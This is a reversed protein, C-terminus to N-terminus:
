QAVLNATATVLRISSFSSYQSSLEVKDNSSKKTIFSHCYVM